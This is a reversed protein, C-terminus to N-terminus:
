HCPHCSKFGHCATKSVAARGVSSCGKVVKWEYKVVFDGCFLFIISFYYIIFISINPQSNGGCLLPPRPTAQKFM